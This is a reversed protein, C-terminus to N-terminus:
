GPPAHPSGAPAARGAGHPQARAKFLAKLESLVEHTYPDGLASGTFIKVAYEAKGEKKRVKIVTGYAGQSARAPTLDSCAASHAWRM